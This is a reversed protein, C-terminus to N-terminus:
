RTNHLLWVTKSVQFCFFFVTQLKINYNLTNIEWFVSGSVENPCGSNEINFAKVKFFSSVSTPWKLIPGGATQSSSWNDITCTHLRRLSHTHWINFLSRRCKMFLCLRAFTDNLFLNLFYNLVTYRTSMVLLYNVNYDYLRIKPTCGYM